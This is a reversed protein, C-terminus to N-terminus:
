RAAIGLANATEGTYRGAALHNDEQFKVMAQMTDRTFLGNNVGAYYGRRALAAQLSAVAQDGGGISALYPTATPESFESKSYAPRPAAHATGPPSATPPTRDDECTTIMHCQKAPKSPPAPRLRRPLPRRHVPPAGYSQRQSHVRDARCEIQRWEFRSPSVIKIRDYDRYVPPVTYPQTTDEACIKVKVTEFAPPIIRKEVHAPVDVVQRTIVRFEPPVPIQVTRAPTRLVQRTITKYEPPVEVLCLVEGTPLVRTPQAGYGSSRDVAGGAYAGPAGPGYGAVSSGPRWATYGEKVKVQESVTDYVAPITETRTYGPKVLVPESVTKFTAPITILEVTEEKVLVPRDEIRCVGPIVKLETKEPSVLVHEPVTETVEPVLVKTFCQGPAANPPYAETAVQGPGFGVPGPAGCGNSGCQAGGYAPAEAGAPSAAVAFVILAGGSVFSSIRM